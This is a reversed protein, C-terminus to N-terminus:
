VYICVQPQGLGAARPASVASSVRLDQKKLGVNIQQLLGEGEGLRELMQRVKLADALLIQTHVDVSSARRHSETINIIEVNDASTETVSAIAAKYKQQTGADFESRSYPM